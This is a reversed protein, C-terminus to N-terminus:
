ACHAALTATDHYFPMVRRAKGGSVTWREILPMVLTEGRSNTCTIEVFGLVTEGDAIVKEVRVGRLGLTRGLDNLAQIVATPGHWEGPVPHWAPEVLVVDDALLAAFGELDGQQVAAYLQEVVAQASLESAVSM